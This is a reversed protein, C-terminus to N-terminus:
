LKSLKWWNERLTDQKIRFNQWTLGKPFFAFGGHSPDGTACMFQVHLKNCLLKWIRMMFMILVVILPLESLTAFTFSPTSKKVNLIEISNFASSPLNLWKYFLLPLHLYLENGVAKWVFLLKMQHLLCTCGFVLMQSPLSLMTILNSKSIIQKNGGEMYIKQSCKYIYYLQNIVLYSLLVHLVNKKHWVFHLFLCWNLVVICSNPM